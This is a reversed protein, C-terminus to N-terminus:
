LNQESYCLRYYLRYREGQAWCARFERKGERYNMFLRLDFSEKSNRPIIQFWAKRIMNFLRSPWKRQQHSMLNWLFNRAKPAGDKVTGEDADEEWKARHMWFANQRSDSMPKVESLCALIDSWWDFFDRQPLPFIHRVTIHLGLMAKESATSLLSDTISIRKL